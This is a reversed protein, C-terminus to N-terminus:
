AWVGSSSFNTCQLSSGTCGFNFVLVFGLPTRSKRETAFLSQNCMADAREEPLSM